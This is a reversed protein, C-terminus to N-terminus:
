IFTSQPGARIQISYHHAQFLLAQQELYFQPQIKVQHHSLEFQQQVKRLLLFPSNILQSEVTSVTQRTELQTLITQNPQEAHLPLFFLTLIGLLLRHWLAKKGVKTLQYDM